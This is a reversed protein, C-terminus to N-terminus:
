VNTWCQLRELLQRCSLSFLIVGVRRWIRKQMIVGKPDCSVKLRMPFNGKSQTATMASSFRGCGKRPFLTGVFYPGLFFFNERTM